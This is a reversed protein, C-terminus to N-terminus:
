IFKIYDYNIINTVYNLWTDEDQLFSIFSTCKFTTKLRNALRHM